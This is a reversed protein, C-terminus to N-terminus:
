DDRTAAALQAPDVPPRKELGLEYSAEKLRIALMKEAASELALGSQMMRPVEDRAAFLLCQKAPEDPGAKAKVEDAIQKATKKLKDQLGLLEAPSSARKSKVEDLIGKLAQYRKIDDAHSKPLYRWGVILLVFAITCLSGIAKPEKLSELLDPLWTSKQAPPKKSFSKGPVAAPRGSGYTSMSSSSTSSFGGGMSSAFGSNMSSPHASRMPEDAPPEPATTETQPEHAAPPQRLTQVVPNSRSASASASPVTIAPNSKAQQEAAIAKEAANLLATPAVPPPAALSSAAQAQSRALDRAQAARAIMEIASFLGPINSSSVYQGHQGNRVLDSPKLQGSKALGFVQPFEVPGFEVGGAWGWWFRDVNPASAWAIQSRAQEEAAKFTADAQALMAEVVKAAAQEFAVRYTADQNPAVAPKPTPDPSVSTGPNVRTEPSVGTRPAPVAGPSGNAAPRNGPRIKKEVAQYPLAAMLRGISGARRWKGDSGLRVEDDASLQEHEAFKLLEDFSLPGLEQGAVMCYWDDNATQRTSKEFDTSGTVATATVTDRGSTSLGLEEVTVADIWDGSSTSRIQDFAQITGTEALEKLKEFPMPGFEEGFMRYVWQETM